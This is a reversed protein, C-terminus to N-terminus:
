AREIELLPPGQTHYQQAQGRLAVFRQEGDVVDDRILPGGHHERTLHCLEVATKQPALRRRECIERQLVGIKGMPLATMQLALHQRPRETVPSLLEDIESDEIERGIM